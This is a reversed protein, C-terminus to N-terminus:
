SCRCEASDSATCDVTRRITNYSLERPLFYGSCKRYCRGCVRGVYSFPHSPYAGSCRVVGFLEGDVAYWVGTAQRQDTRVLYANSQPVGAGDRRFTTTATRNWLFPPPSLTKLLEFTQNLAAKIPLVTPWRAFHSRRHDMLTISCEDAM